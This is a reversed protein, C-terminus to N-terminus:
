KGVRAEARLVAYEAKFEETWARMLALQNVPDAAKYEAKRRQAETMDFPFVGLRARLEDRRKPDSVAEIEIRTERLEELCNICSAQILEGVIGFTADERKQSKNFGAAATFPDDKDVFNTMDSYVSAMVPLRRLNTTKPGGPAGARTNWLLQGQRSLVFEMFARAVERHEAGLLMAIPDPNTITAGHPQVYGLRNHYIAEVESRGYYDITMGAAADGSAIIGPVTSSGDVFSRANSCILRITGMGRAWGISEPEHKDASDQMAREIMAMFATKSSTSRVPDAAIVWNNYKFDGLDAWTTPPDLKLYSLVPKNYTIGFSALAAGYWHPPNNHSDYLPLGNLTPNPFAEAMIAPDLAVGQLHQKIQSDFFYDGGGWALDIQYTHISKYLTDAKDEIVRQIDGTGLAIYDINVDKGTKNKYWDRFADSYERRVGETHSTIIILQEANKAPAASSKEGLFLRLVFPTILVLVFLIIWIYRRM